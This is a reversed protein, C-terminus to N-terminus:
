PPPHPPTSIPPPFPLPPSPPPLNSHPRLLQDGPESEIRTGGIPYEAGPQVEDRQQIPSSWSDAPITWADCPLGLEVSASSNTSQKARARGTATTTWNFSAAWRSKTM